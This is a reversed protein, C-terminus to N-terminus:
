SVKDKQVIYVGSLVAVAGIIQFFTMRERLALAAVLLAVVPVLYQYVVTRAVGIKKIGQYWLTFGISGSIFSSYCLAAWSRSSITLWSQNLMEYVSAPLLLVTGAAMSYATIKVASYKALLPQAKISYLAWLVAACLTILDGALGHHTAGPGETGGKMILFVGLFSLILGAGIQSTPREKGSLALLLVAFLPSTSVFLASNSATTYKLGYVFFTNYLTIGILGLRIVPVRDEREIGFPERTFIMLGFLFFTSLSYRVVNFSMPSFEILAYKAVAFNVGWIISVLILLLNMMATRAYLM